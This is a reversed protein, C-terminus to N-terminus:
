GIKPVVAVIRRAIADVIVPQDGVLVHDDSARWARQCFIAPNAATTRQHAASTHCNARPPKVAQIRAQAGQKGSQSEGSGQNGLVGPWSRWSAGRGKAFRRKPKGDVRL